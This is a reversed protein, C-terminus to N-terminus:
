SSVRLDLVENYLFPAVERVQTHLLVEVESFGQDKLETVIQAARNTKEESGSRFIYLHIVGGKEKIANRAADLYLEAGKPLNMIVRDAIGRLRNLALERADGLFGEVRSQVKNLSINKMLYHYANTNIDCAFVKSDVHTRAILISFPGIGAFLDCVVENPQVLSAVRKRETSLRPTFFVKTIDLLYSCGHERYVTETQGEGFWHEYSAIRTSGSIPSTKALIMRTNPHVIRLAQVIQSRYAKMAETPQIVIIDGVVDFSRRFDRLVHTPVLVSLAEKLDKPKRKRVRLRMQVLDGQLSIKSSNSSWAKPVAPVYIHDGEVSPHYNVDIIGLDRLKPRVKEYDKKPLKLAWTLEPEQSM